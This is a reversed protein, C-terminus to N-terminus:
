FSLLLHEDVLARVYGTVEGSLACSEVDADVYDLYVDATRNASPVALRAHPIVAAVTTGCGAFASVKPYDTRGHILCVVLSSREGVLKVRKVFVDARDQGYATVENIFTTGAGFAALEDRIEWAKRLLRSPSETPLTKALATAGDVLVVSFATRRLATRRVQSIAYSIPEIEPPTGRLFSPRKVAARSQWQDVAGWISKALEETDRFHPRRVLHSEDLTEYFDQLRLPHRSHPMAATIGDKVFALVPMRLTRAREYEAHTYSLGTEALMSGYQHGLLLVYIDCSDLAAVCEAWGVNPASQFDEMRVVEFGRYELALWAVTREPELDLKTSSLFARLKRQPQSSMAQGALAKPGALSVGAPEPSPLAARRPPVGPLLVASFARPGMGPEAVPWRSRGTGSSSCARSHSDCVTARTSRMSSASRKRFDPSALKKGGPQFRYETLVALALLRADILLSTQILDRYIANGQTGRGAEVELAVGLDAHFADVDWAREEAGLEGFLVPRRLKAAKKGVEVEYGLAVLAPRLLALKQDSTM